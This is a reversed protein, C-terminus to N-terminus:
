SFSESIDALDWFVIEIASKAHVDLLDAFKNRLFTIAKEHVGEPTKFTYSHKRNELLEIREGIRLLSEFPEMTVVKVPDVGEKLGMEGFGPTELSFEFNVLANKYEEFVQFQSNTYLVSILNGTGVRSIEKLALHYNEILHLLHVSIIVEFTGDRFPLACADGMVLNELGKSRAKRLMTSNADVGVVDIEIKQLPYAFRGTGVGLDLIKKNGKLEGAIVEIVEDMTAKPLGRTEDYIPAIFDFFSSM